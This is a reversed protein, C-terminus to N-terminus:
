EFDINNESTKQVRLLQTKPGCLGLMARNQGGLHDGNPELSPVFDTWVHDRFRPRDWLRNQILKLNIKSRNQLWKPVIKIAMHSAIVVWPQGFVSAPWLGHSDSPRCTYRDWIPGSLCGFESNTLFFINRQLLALPAPEIVMRHNFRHNFVLHRAPSQFHHSKQSSSM